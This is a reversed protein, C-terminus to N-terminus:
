KERFVAILLSQVIEGRVIFHYPIPCFILFPKFLEYFSPYSLKSEGKVLGIHLIVNLLKDNFGEELIDELARERINDEGDGEEGDEDDKNDKGKDEEKELM